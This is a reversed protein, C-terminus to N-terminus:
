YGKGPIYKVHICRRRQTNSPLFYTKLADDDDKVHSCKKDFISKSVKLEFDKSTHTYITHLLLQSRKIKLLVIHGKEKLEFLFLCWKKVWWAWLSWEVGIPNGRVMGLNTETKVKKWKERFVLKNKNIKTPKTCSSSENNTPISITKDEPKDKNEM